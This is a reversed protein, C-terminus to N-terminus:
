VEQKKIKEELEGLRFYIAEDWGVSPIKGEHKNYIMEKIEQVDQLVTNAM